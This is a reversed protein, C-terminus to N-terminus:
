VENPLSFIGIKSEAGEETDMISERPHMSDMILGLQDRAINM